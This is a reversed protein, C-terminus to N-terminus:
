AYRNEFYEYYAGKLDYIISSHQKQISERLYGWPELFFGKSEGKM